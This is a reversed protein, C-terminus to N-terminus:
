ANLGSAWWAHSGPSMRVGAPRASWVSRPPVPTVSSAARRAALAAIVAIVAAADEDDIANTKPPM